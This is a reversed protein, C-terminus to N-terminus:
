DEGALACDFSERLHDFIFFVTCVVGGVDCDLVELVFGLVWVLAVLQVFRTVKLM